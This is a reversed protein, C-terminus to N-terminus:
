SLTPLTLHSTTAKIRHQAQWLQNIKQSTHIKAERTSHHCSTTASRTVPHSNSLKIMSDNKRRGDM